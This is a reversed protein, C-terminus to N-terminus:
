SWRLSFLVADKEDRFFISSEFIHRWRQYEPGFQEYCWIRVEDYGNISDFEIKHWGLILDTVSQGEPFHVRSM